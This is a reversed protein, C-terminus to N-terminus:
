KFLGNLVTLLCRAQEVMSYKELVSKRANQGVNHRLYPERLANLHELWEKQTGALFGNEGQKIIPEYAPIPSAIVPLGVCMKMTLRNESKVKWPPPFVSQEDCTAEIPIIGIDAQKMIEYVKQPEWTLRDIRKNALFRLYAVRRSFSKQKLFQWRSENLRKTSDKAYCGVISVNLWDPPSVLVPLCDLQASTVLVANLPRSCSGRNLNFDTKFFEPHEIGDHVVHIKKQLHLPHLSKLYETVVITATTAITMEEDVWDCVGYVTKIGSAALKEALRLVSDGHVKQFYVIQYGKSLIRSAVTDLDPTENAHEPEFVIHPDFGADRLFPLMNFVSIRTSPIPFSSNSLLVFGIKKPTM